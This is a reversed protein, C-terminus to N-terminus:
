KNRPRILLLLEFGVVSTDVRFDRCQNRSINSCVGVSNFSRRAAWVPTAPSWRNCFHPPHISWLRAPDLWIDNSFLFIGFMHSGLTRLLVPFLKGDLFDGLFLSLRGSDNISTYDHPIVGLFNHRLRGYKHLRPNWSVVSLKKDSFVIFPVMWTHLPLYLCHLIRTTSDWPIEGHWQKGKSFWCLITTTLWWTQIRTPYRSSGRAWLGKETDLHNGLAPPDSIQLSRYDTQFLSERILVIAPYFRGATFRTFPLGNQTADLGIVFDFYWWLTFSLWLLHLALIM